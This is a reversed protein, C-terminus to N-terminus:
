EVALCVYVKVMIEDLWYFDVQLWRWPKVRKFMSLDNHFGQCTGTCRLRSRSDSFPSPTLLTPPRRKFVNSKKLFKVIVLQPNKHRIARIKLVSIFLVNEFKVHLLIFHRDIPHYWFQLIGTHYTDTLGVSLGLVAVSEQLGSTPVKDMLAWCRQCWGTPLFCEKIRTFNSTLNTIEKMLFYIDLLFHCKEHPIAWGKRLARPNFLRGAKQNESSSSTMPHKHLYLEFPLTTLGFLPIQENMCKVFLSTKRARLGWTLDSFLLPIETGESLNPGRAISVTTM